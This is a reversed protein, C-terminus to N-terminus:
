QIKISSNLHILPRCREDVAADVAVVARDNVALLAAAAEMIFRDDAVVEHHAEEAALLTHLVQLERHTHLVQHLDLDHRILRHDQDDEM